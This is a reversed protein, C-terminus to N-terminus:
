LTVGGSVELVAGNFYSAEDSALFAYAAAIEEPQGLRKMPVKKIMADIVKEPMPALIPTDIFGPCVACARIGKSGLEKSWCKAMGIVAFKTAAYNTQGFNGYLGTISSANIIVGKGQAVMTDVVARACNYTGNLNVNIVMDWEDDTMKQLTNDKLIGANNVLVDIRGYKANVTEVMAKVSARDTVDLRVVFAEGGDAIIQDRLAEASATDVDGIVVKAGEKAFTKCTVAGIGKGGGTIICVKDKLKM